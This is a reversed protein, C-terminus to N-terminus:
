RPQTRAPIEAGVDAILQTRAPDTVTVVTRALDTLRQGHEHAYQRLRESAEGMSLDHVEALVGKAMEFLGRSMVTSQLSPLLSAPDGGRDQQVLAIAAVHVLAQALRLDNDSLNGVGTGFLGLAGLTQGRLRMPIAHVSQFGHEVAAATFRPWRQAEAQLDPVEVMQGSHYCDLCPGEERQLQFLELSRAQESTGALLHLVGGADALLLGAAGVDLLRACDETLQITLDLVDFDDVLRDAFGIFADIVAHERNTDTM